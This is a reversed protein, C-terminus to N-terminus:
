SGDVSLRSPLMRLGRPIRAVSVAHCLFVELPTFVTEYPFSLVTEYPFSVRIDELCMRVPILGSCGLIGGTTFWSVNMAFWTANLLSNISSLPFFDRQPSPETWLANMVQMFAPWSPERLDESSM